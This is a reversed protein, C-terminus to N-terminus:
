AAGAVAAAVAEAEGGGAGLGEAKACTRMIGLVLALVNLQLAPLPMGQVCFLNNHDHRMHGTNKQM